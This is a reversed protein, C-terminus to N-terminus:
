ENWSISEVEEVTECNALLDKLDWYQDYIAQVASLMILSLEQCHEKDFVHTEETSSRISVTKAGLDFAKLLVIMNSQAEENADFTDNDYKVKVNKRKAQMVAKLQAHKEEKLTELSKKPAFGKLYTWGNLESVETDTIAITNNQWGLQHALQTSETFSGLHKDDYLKDYYYTNEVQEFVTLVTETEQELEEM